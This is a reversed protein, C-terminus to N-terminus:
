CSFLSKTFVREDFLAYPRGSARYALVAYTACHQQAKCYSVNVFVSNLISKAPTSRARSLVHSRPIRAGACGMQQVLADNEHIMMATV